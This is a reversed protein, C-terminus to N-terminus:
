WRLVLPGLWRGILATMLIGLTYWLAIFTTSQEPCALAYGIAGLAGALLGSAWGAQALQTPALGRMVWLIAALAPLSFSMLTWPCMLWTQGLVANARQGEPTLGLATVGMVAIIFLIAFLLRQPLFLVALPRALRATLVTAVGALAIAYAFKIWPAPAQFTEIPLPGILVVSLLISCTIGVIIAPILRHLAVTRPAPGANRALMNVLQETNM